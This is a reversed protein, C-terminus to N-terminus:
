EIRAVRTIPTTGTPLIQVNVYDPTLWRERQRSLAARPVRGFHHIFIAINCETTGGEDAEPVKERWRSFPFFWTQHEKRIRDPPV